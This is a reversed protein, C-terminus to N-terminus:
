DGHTIELRPLHEPPWDAWRRMNQVECLLKDPERRDREVRGAFERLATRLADRWQVERRYLEAYAEAIDSDEYEVHDCAWGGHSIGEAIHKAPDSLDDSLFRARGMIDECDACTEVRSERLDESM